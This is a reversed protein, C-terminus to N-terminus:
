PYYGGGPGQLILSYFYTKPRTFMGLDGDNDAYWPQTADPIVRHKEGADVFEFNWLEVIVLGVQWFVVLVIAGHRRYVGM